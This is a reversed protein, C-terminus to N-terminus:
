ADSTNDRNDLNQHRRLLFVDEISHQYDTRLRLHNLNRQKHM